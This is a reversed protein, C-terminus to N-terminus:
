AMCQQYIRFLQEAHQQMTFRDLITDRAAIGLNRRRQPDRLLMGIAFVLQQENEPNVIFGNRGHQIVEPIGDQRTVIVAKGCSMAELYNCGPEDSRGPLVFITCAKFADARQERSHPKTFTVVDSIALEQNLNRLTSHEPGDGIIELSLTPFERRLQAVARLLLHQEEAAIMKGVNLLKSPPEETGVSPAFLHPDVGDYVVSTRCSRGTRQLVQERLHENDCIVRGSEAYVRQSVSRSWRGARGVARHLSREERAHVSVVYPIDLEKRVLMAAHGCPFCGHAHLLDIREKSHLERIKGIIRAFLFAGATSDGVERPIRFYRLNPIARAETGTKPRSNWVSQVNLVTSRLGLSSLLALSELAACGGLDHVSDLLPVLSLINPRKANM